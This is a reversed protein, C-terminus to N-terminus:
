KTTKVVVGREADTALSIAASAVIETDIRRWTVRMDGIVSGGEGGCVGELEFEPSSDSGALGFDIKATRRRNLFPERAPGVNSRDDRYSSIASPTWFLGSGRNGARVVKECEALICVAMHIPKGM